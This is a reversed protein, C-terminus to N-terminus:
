SRNEPTREHADPRAKEWHKVSNQSKRSSAVKHAAVGGVRSSSLTNQPSQMTPLKIESLDTVVM